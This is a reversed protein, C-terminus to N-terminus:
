KLNLLKEFQSLKAKLENLEKRKANVLERVIDKLDVILEYEKHPRGKGKKKVERERIWKLEKLKKMTLSVEPQRLDAHREIEKAKARKVKSLYVITKALNRHLGIKTLLEILKEDRNM